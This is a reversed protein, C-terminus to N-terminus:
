HFLSCTPMPLHLQAAVRRGAPHGVTWRWPLLYRPMVGLVQSRPHQEGTAARGGMIKVRLRSALNPRQRPFMHAWERSRQQTPPQCMHGPM